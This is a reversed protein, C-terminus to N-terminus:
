RVAMVVCAAGLLAAITIACLALKRWRCLEEAIMYPNGHITVLLKDGASPELEGVNKIRRFEPDRLLYNIKGKTRFSLPPYCREDDLVYIM